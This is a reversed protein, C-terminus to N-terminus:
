TGSSYSMRGVQRCDPADKPAPGLVTLVCVLRWAREAEEPGARPM